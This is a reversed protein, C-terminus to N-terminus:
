VKQSFVRPAGYELAAASEWAAVLKRAGAAAIGPRPPGHVPLVHVCLAGAPRSLLIISLGASPQCAKHNSFADMDLLVVVHWLPVLVCSPLSLLVRVCTQSLYFVLFARSGMLIFVAM